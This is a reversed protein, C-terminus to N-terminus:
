ELKLEMIGSKSSTQFQKSGTHFRSWIPQNILQNNSQNTNLV